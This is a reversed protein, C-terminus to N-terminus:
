FLRRAPAFDSCVIVVMNAHLARRGQSEYIKASVDNDPPNLNQYATYMRDRLLRANSRKVGLKAEWPIAQIDYVTSSDPRSIKAPREWDLVHAAESPLNVFLGALEPMRIRPVRARMFWQRIFQDITLNREFALAVHGNAGIQPRSLPPALLTALLPSAIHAEFKRLVLSPHIYYISSESDQHRAYYQEPTLLPHSPRPTRIGPTAKGQSSEGIFPLQSSKAQPVTTTDSTTSPRTEGSFQRSMHAAVYAKYKVLDNPLNHVARYGSSFSVIPQNVSIDCHVLGVIYEPGLRSFHVLRGYVKTETMLSCVAAFSSALKHLHLTVCCKGPYSPHSERIGPNTPRQTEQQDKPPIRSPTASSITLRHFNMSETHMSLGGQNNAEGGVEGEAHEHHITHLPTPYEATLTLALALDQGSLHKPGRSAHADRARPKAHQNAYYDVTDDMFEDDPVYFKKTDRWDHDDHNAPIVRRERKLGDNRFSAFDLRNILCGNARLAQLHLLHAQGANPANDIANNPDGIDDDDDSDDDFELDNFSHDNDMDMNDDQMDIDFNANDAPAADDPSDDFSFPWPGPNMAPVEDESIHSATTSLEGSFESVLDMPQDASLEFFDEPSEDVNAVTQVPSASASSATAQNEMMTERVDRRLTSLASHRAEEADLFESIDFGNEHEFDDINIESGGDGLVRAAAEDPVSSMIVPSKLNELTASTSTAEPTIQLALNRSARGVVSDHPGVM